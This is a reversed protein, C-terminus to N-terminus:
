CNAQSQAESPQSGAEEWFRLLTDVCLRQKMKCQGSHGLIRRQISFFCKVWQDQEGWAVFLSSSHGIELNQDQPGKRGWAKSDKFSLKFCLEQM